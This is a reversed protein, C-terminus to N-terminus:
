RKKQWKRNSQRKNIEDLLWKKVQVPDRHPNLADTSSKDNLLNIVNIVGASNPGSPGGKLLGNRENKEFEETCELSAKLEEDTKNQILKQIYSDDIMTREMTIQDEM